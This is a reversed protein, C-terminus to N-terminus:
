AHTTHRFALPTNDATQLEINLPAPAPIGQQQFFEEAPRCPGEADQLIHIAHAILEDRKDLDFYKPRGLEFGNNTVTRITFMVGYADTTTNIMGRCGGATGDTLLLTDGNIVNDLLSKMRNSREITLPSHIDAIVARVDDLCHGMYEYFRRMEARMEPSATAEDDRIAEMLLRCQREFEKARTNCHRNPENYILIVASSADLFRGIITQTLGDTMRPPHSPKAAVDIMRGLVSVLNLYHLIPRLPLTNEM